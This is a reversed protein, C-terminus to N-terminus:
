KEFLKRKLHFLTNNLARQYPLFTYGLQLLNFLYAGFYGPYNKRYKKILLLRTKAMSRMNRVSIGREGHFRNISHIPLNHFKGYLGMRFWLDWDEANPADKDYLGIKKLVSKRFVVSPHVFPNAFLIKKRIELDTEPQLYSFLKKGSENVTIAGTGVLVYDKNEELFKVQKELKQNDIWRDDDDARAIYIGKAQSLGYNLSKTIKLNQKNKLYKIRSDRKIFELIIEETNDSSADNVIILEFNKYTQTLIAELTRKLFSARNYTPMIISVLPQPTKKM